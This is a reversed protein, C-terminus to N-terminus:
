VRVEEKKTLYSYVISTFIGEVVGFFLAHSGVLAPITISLDFPFYLAKGGESWFVPQIGLVLAVVFSSAVISIWGSVFPAYRYRKLLNFVYYGCFSGVFAMSLANTAFTMIGGDGFVLAQILLVLSVSIFGVWPGFMIAIVAAGVAHGSSGGPIPINFMMIIFSLASLSGIVPLTEENLSEKLKKFGYIFLPTAIMYTVAVSSPSIYGDPIHMNEGKSHINM